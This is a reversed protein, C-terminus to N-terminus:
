EVGNTRRGLPGLRRLRNRNARQARQPLDWPQGVPPVEGGHRRILDYVMAVPVFGYVQTSGVFYGHPRTKRYPRWRSAPRPEGGDFFGVEVDLYPGPYDARVYGLGVLGDSDLVPEPRPYCFCGPGAIVSFTYGDRCAVINTGNRGKLVNSPDDPDVYSRNGLLRIDRFTM